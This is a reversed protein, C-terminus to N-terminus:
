EGLKNPIRPPPGEYGRRFTLRVKKKRTTVELERYESSGTDSTSFGLVYQHRLDSAITRAAGVAEGSSSVWFYQGGTLHALLNLVDAYRHLKMGDRDLIDPSGTSLGLVYVPLEAQRVKRRAETPSLESANDAGDTILIAARKASQRNRTLEPLGSVADHLGTVGYPRWLAMAKDILDPDESFPIELTLSGDAFTALAFQDGARAEALLLDITLRSLRLKDANAMSGSLDQLFMISVPATAGVEFSEFAISRGDVKLQFDEAVLDQAYGVPSRAIVPVLIYAVSVRDQFGSQLASQPEDQGWVPTAVGLLPLFIALRAYRIFKRM